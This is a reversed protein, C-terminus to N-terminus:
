TADGLNSRNGLWVLRIALIWTTATRSREHDPKGPL